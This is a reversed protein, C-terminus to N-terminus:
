RRDTPTGARLHSATIEREADARRAWASGEISKGPRTRTSTSSQEIELGVFEPVHHVDRLHEMRPDDSPVCLIKDDGGKEDSM